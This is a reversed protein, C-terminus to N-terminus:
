CVMDRLVKGCVIFELDFLVCVDAIWEVEYGSSGTRGFNMYRCKVLTPDERPTM